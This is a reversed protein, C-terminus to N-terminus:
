SDDTEEEEQIQILSVTYLGTNGASQWPTGIEVFYTGPEYHEMVSEVPELDAQFRFKLDESLTSWIGVSDPGDSVTLDYRGAEAIEFRFFDRDDLSELGRAPIAYGDHTEWWDWPNLGPDDPSVDSDICATISEGPHLTVDRVTKYDDAFDDARIPLTYFGLYGHDEPRPGAALYYTGDEQPRFHARAWTGIFGGESHEGLVQEGRENVIELISPDILKNEVYQIFFIEEPGPGALDMASVLEIIYDEGAVAEFFYWDRGEDEPTIEGDIRGRLNPEISVANEAWQPLDPKVISPEETIPEETPPTIVPDEVDVQVVVHDPDDELGHFLRNLRGDGPNVPWLGGDRTDVSYYMGTGPGGAEVSIGDQDLDDPQVTYGFVINDTGDGWVVNAVRRNEGIQLYLGAYDTQEGTDPNKTTVPHTFKANVLIQDGTTYGAVTENGDDDLALERPVSRIELDFIGVGDDDRITITCQDNSGNDNSNNFKVM